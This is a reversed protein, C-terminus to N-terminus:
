VFIGMAGIRNIVNLLKHGDLFNHGKQHVYDAPQKESIQIEKYIRVHATRNSILGDLMDNLGSMFSLVTIFMTISITVGIAAVLTQKWRAILLSFAVQYVLKFKM